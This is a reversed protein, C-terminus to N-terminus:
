SFQFTVVLQQAGKDVTVVDDNVVMHLSVGLVPAEHHHIDEPQGIAHHHFVPVADLVHRGM